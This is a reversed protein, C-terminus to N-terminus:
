AEKTAAHKVQLIICHAYMIKSDMPRRHPQIHQGTSHFTHAAVPRSYTQVKHKTHNAYLAPSNM